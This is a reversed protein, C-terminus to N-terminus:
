QLQANAHKKADKSLADVWMSAILTKDTQTHIDIDQVLSNFLSRSSIIASRKM